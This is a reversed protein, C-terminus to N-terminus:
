QQTETYDYILWLIGHCIHCPTMAASIFVAYIDTTGFKTIPTAISDNM